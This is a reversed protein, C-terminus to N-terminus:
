QLPRQPVAQIFQSYPGSLPPLDVPRHLSCPWCFLLLLFCFPRLNICESGEKRERENNERPIHALVRV